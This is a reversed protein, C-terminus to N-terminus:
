MIQCSSATETTPGAKSSTLPEIVHPTNPPCAGPHQHDSLRRTTTSNRRLGDDSKALYSQSTQLSLRQQQKKRHRKTNTTSLKLEALRDIAKAYHQKAALEYWHMAEMLNQETGIGSESYYGCAYQGKAYGADAAKRAWLYAEVDNSPLLIDTGNSGMAGTLYWGSLALISEM